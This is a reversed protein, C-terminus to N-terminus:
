KDLVDLIGYHSCTWLLSYLSFYSPNYLVQNKYQLNYHSRFCSALELDTEFFELLNAYLSEATVDGHFAREVRYYNEIVRIILNRKFAILSETGGSPFFLDISDQM